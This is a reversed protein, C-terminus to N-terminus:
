RSRPPPRTKRCLLRPLAVRRASGLGLRGLHLPFWEFAESLARLLGAAPVSAVMEAQQCQEIPRSGYDGFQTVRQIDDPTSWRFRLCRQLTNDRDQLSRVTANATTSPIPNRNITDRVILAARDAIPALNLAASGNGAQPNLASSKATVYIMIASGKQLLRCTAASDKCRIAPRSKLSM